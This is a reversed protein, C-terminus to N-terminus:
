SKQFIECVIELRIFPKIENVKSFKDIEVNLLKLFGPHYNQLKDIFEFIFKDHWFYGKVKYKIRKFSNLRSINCKKVETVIAFNHEALNEVFKRFNINKGSFNHESIFKIVRRDFCKIPGTLLESEQFKNFLIEKHIFTAICVFSMLAFILLICSNAKILCSITKNFKKNIMIKM